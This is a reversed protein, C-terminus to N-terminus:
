SLNQQSFEVTGEAWYEMPNVSAYKGQWLGKKMATEYAMRLREDFTPDVHKLGDVPYQPIFGTFHIAHAFEHIMISAVIHQADLIDAENASVVKGSFLGRQPYIMFDPTSTTARYEPIDTIIEDAPGVSFRIENIVMIRLLEPRYGIMKEIIWAAEKLAYLNVKAAALVPLGRVNIWQEYYPDLRYFDRVLAIPPISDGNVSNAKPLQQLYNDLEKLTRKPGSEEALIEAFGTLLFHTMFTLTLFVLKLRM